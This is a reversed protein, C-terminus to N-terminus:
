KPLPRAALHIWSQTLWLEGGILRPKAGTRPGGDIEHILLERIHSGAATNAAEGLWSDVPREVTFVELRSVEAGASTVLDVLRAVSPTPPHQPDRIREIRDRDSGALNPRVLDAIIMRGDTRCVRLLERLVGEVDGSRYVSFRALVLSFTGTHYPLACPQARVLAADRHARERGFHVTPMRDGRTPTPRPVALRTDVAAMRRVRAMAAPIPGPGHSVDLCVDDRDPETFDILRALQPLASLASTTRTRTAQAM